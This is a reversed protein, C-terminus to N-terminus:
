WTGMQNWASGLSQSTNSNLNSSDTKQPLYQTSFPQDSERKWYTYSPKDTENIENKIEESNNEM